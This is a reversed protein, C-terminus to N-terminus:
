TEAWSVLLYSHEIIEFLFLPCHSECGENVKLNLYKQVLFTVIECNCFPNIFNFFFHFFIPTRDPTRTKRKRM